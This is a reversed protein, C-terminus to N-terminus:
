RRGNAVVGRAFAEEGEPGIKDLIRDLHVTWAKAKAGPRGYLGRQIQVRKSELAYFVESWDEATLTIPSEHGVEVEAYTDRLVELLETICGVMTKKNEMM